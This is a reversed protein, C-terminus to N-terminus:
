NEEQNLLRQMQELLRFKKGAEYGALQLQSATHGLVPPLVDMGIKGVRFGELFMQIAFRLGNSFKFSGESCDIDQIAALLYGELDMSERQETM